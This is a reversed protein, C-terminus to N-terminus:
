NNNKQSIEATSRLFHGIKLSGPPEFRIAIISELDASIGHALALQELQLRLTYSGLDTKVLELSGM